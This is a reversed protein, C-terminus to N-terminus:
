KAAALASGVDNGIQEVSRGLLTEYPNKRAFIGGSNAGSRRSQEFRFLVKKTGGDIVEGTMEVGAAGGILGGIGGFHRAAESGPSMKVLKARVVLTGAGGSGQTVAMGAASKVGALFIDNIGSVVNMAPKYSNDSAEPLEAGKTTIPAVAIQKYASASFPQLLEVKDLGNWDEHTGATMAAKGRASIGTASLLIAFAATLTILHSKKM